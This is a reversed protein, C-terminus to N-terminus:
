IKRRETLIGKREIEKIKEMLNKYYLSNDETNKLNKYNNSITTKLREIKIQTIINM